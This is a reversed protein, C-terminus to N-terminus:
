SIEGIGIPFSDSVAEHFLIATVNFGLTNIAV